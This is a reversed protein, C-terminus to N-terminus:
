ANVRDVLLDYLALDEAPLGLSSSPVNAVPKPQRPPDPVAAAASPRDADTAEALVTPPPPSRRPEPGRRLIAAVAAAALAGLLLTVTRSGAPREPARERVPSPPRRRPAQLKAFVVGCRPCAADTVGTQGCRPCNM